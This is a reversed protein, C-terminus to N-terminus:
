STGCIVVVSVSVRSSARSTESAKPLTWARRSTESVSRGPSIVESTVEPGAVEVEAREEV